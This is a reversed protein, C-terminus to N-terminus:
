WEHRGAPVAQDQVAANATDRASNDQFRNWAIAADLTLLGEALGADLAAAAQVAAFHAAALQARVTAREPDPEGGAERLQREGEAFHEPGTM